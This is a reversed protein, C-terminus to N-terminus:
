KTCRALASATPLTPSTKALPGGFVRRAHSGASGEAMPGNQTLTYQIYARGDARAILSLSCSPSCVCKKYPTIDTITNNSPPKASTGLSHTPRFQSHSPSAPGAVAEDLDDSSEDDSVGIQELLAGHADTPLPHSLLPLDTDDDFEEVVATRRAM